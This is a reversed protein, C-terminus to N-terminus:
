TREKTMSPPSDTNMIVLIQRLFKDPHCTQKESKYKECPSPAGGKGVKGGPASSTQYSEQNEPPIDPQRFIRGAQTSGKVPIFRQNIKKAM